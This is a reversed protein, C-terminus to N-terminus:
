YQLARTGATATWWNEWAWGSLKTSAYGFISTLDVATAAARKAPRAQKTKRAELADDTVLEVM